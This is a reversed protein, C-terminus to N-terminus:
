RMCLVIPTCPSITHTFAALLDLGDEGQYICVGGECYENTGCEVGACPDATLINYNTLLRCKTVGGDLRRDLPRAGGAGGLGVCRLVCLVRERMDRVLRVHYYPMSRHVRVTYPLSHATRPLVACCCYSQRENGHMASLLSAHSSAPPCRPSKCGKAWVGHGFGAGRVQCLAIAKTATSTPGALSPKARTQSCAVAAMLGLFPNAVDDDRDNSPAWM